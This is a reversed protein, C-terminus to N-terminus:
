LNIIGELKIRYKKHEFELLSIIKVQFEYIETIIDRHFYESSVQKNTQTSIKAQTLLNELKIFENLTNELEENYVVSKIDDIHETITLATRNSIEALMTAMELKSDGFMTLINETQISKLKNIIGYLRGIKDELYKIQFPKDSIRKQEEQTKLSIYVSLIATGIAVSSAIISSIIESSM